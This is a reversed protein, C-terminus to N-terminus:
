KKKERMARFNESLVAQKLLRNQADTNKKGKYKKIVELAYAHTTKNAKKAKASFSGETKDKKMDKEVAQVWNKQM